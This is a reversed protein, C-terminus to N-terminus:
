NRSADSVSIKALACARLIVPISTQKKKRKLSSQRLLGTESNGNLGPLSKGSSSLSDQRHSDLITYHDGHIRHSCLPSPSVRLPLHGRKLSDLSAKEGEVRRPNGRMASCDLVSRRGLAKETGQGSPRHTQPDAPQSPSSRPPMFGLHPQPGLGPM